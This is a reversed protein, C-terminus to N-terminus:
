RWVVYVIYRNSNTMEGGGDQKNDNNPYDKFFKIIETEYRDITSETDSYCVEDISVYSKSYEQNFREDKTQGTKGIKFGKCVKAKAGISNICEQVTM